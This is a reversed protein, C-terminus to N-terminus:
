PKNGSIARFLEALNTVEAGPKIHDDQATLQEKYAAIHQKNQQVLDAMENTDQKAEALQEDREQFKEGLENFQARLDQYAKGLQQNKRTCSSVSPNTTPSLKQLCDCKHSDGSCSGCMVLCHIRTHGAQGTM